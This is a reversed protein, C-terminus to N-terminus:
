VGGLMHFVCARFPRGIMYKVGPRPSNVDAPGFFLKCGRTLKPGGAQTAPWSDTANTTPLPDALSARASWAREPRAVRNRHFVYRVQPPIQIFSREDESPTARGSLAPSDALSDQVAVVGKPCAVWQVCFVVSKLLYKRHVVTRDELVQPLPQRLRRHEVGVGMQGAPPHRGAAQVVHQQIVHDDAVQIRGATGAPRPQRLKGAPGAALLGM